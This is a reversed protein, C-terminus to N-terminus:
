GDLSWCSAACGDDALTNGDDCVEGRELVGNGCVAALVEAYWRLEPRVGDALTWTGVFDWGVFSGELAMAATDLGVGDASGPAGSADIDWYCAEAAPGGFVQQILGGPNGGGDALASAAFSERVAGASASILGGVDVDGVSGEAYSGEVVTGGLAYGVLGGGGFGLAHVEVDARSTRIRGGAELQGVLGGVVYGGNVQGSASVEEILGTSAGAIIGVNTFSPGGVVAGEVLLRRIVGWNFRVLGYQTTFNSLRHYAGDLEGSWAGYALTGAAGGFDLDAVLRLACGEGNWPSFANLQAPTSILYPAGPWGTGTALLDPATSSLLEGACYGRGCTADCGDGDVVNGDDCTEGAGADLVGNGCTEDSDCRPGCGDGADVNGDDCAEGADLVGDGCSFTLCNAACGDGPDLNGDDCVEGVAVDVM